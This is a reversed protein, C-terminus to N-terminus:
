VLDNQLHLQPLATIMKVVTIQATETVIREIAIPVTITTNVEEFNRDMLKVMVTAKRKEAKAVTLRDEIITIKTLDEGIQDESIIILPTSKSKVDPFLQKRTMM